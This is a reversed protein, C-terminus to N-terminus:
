RARASGSTTNADGRPIPRGGSPAVPNVGFVVGSGAENATMTLLVRKLGKKALWRTKLLPVTARCGKCRVTRAWLYAVTPKAVWRPNRLDKLYVADFEANLEEVDTNGDADPPLLEAPRLRFPKGGPKLPQFEAYTPYRSALRRRAEALM